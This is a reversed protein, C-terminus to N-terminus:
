SSDNIGILAIDKPIRKGTKALDERMNYISRDDSILADIRDLNERVYERPTCILRDDVPIGREECAKRYGKAMSRSLTKSDQEVLMIRKRRKSFLYKLADYIGKEFDVSVFDGGVVPINRNIFVVPINKNIIKLVEGDDYNESPPPFLIMAAVDIDIFKRIGQYFQEHDNYSNYPITFYGCKQLQEQISFLIMNEINADKTYQVMMVGILKKIHPSNRDTARCVFTGKGQEVRLLGELVLNSVVSNVTAKNIEYKESLERISPIREGEKYENSLIMNRLFNYFLKSKGISVFRAM